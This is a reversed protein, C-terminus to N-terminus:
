RGLQRPRFRWNLSVGYARARRNYIPAIAPFLKSSTEDKADSSKDHHTQYVYRGIGFGIASGVLVDSLFHERGIYRSLSVAMALGYVGYKVLPKDQYEYAIVTAVSWISAAHGSPFSNGGIFFRGREEGGGPRLRQTTIKLTQSVIASDIFAEAGLLGTERARKNNSALGVFYFAAVIGGAGYDSGIRSVNRSATLTGPSENDFAKVTQRDTAILAATSLGLPALWRGNGKNLHFPSTWIAQQDRLIHKFFKRELSPAPNPSVQPTPSATPTVSPSPITQASAGAGVTIMLALLLCRQSVQSIIFSLKM